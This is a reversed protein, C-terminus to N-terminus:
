DRWVGYNPIEISKKGYIGQEAKKHCAICNSLSKVEKQTIMWKELNKHKKIHYPIQTISEYLVGSQLSKTIKASRKYEMAKDSSNALIYELLDKHESEDLSADSGYHNQLNAM